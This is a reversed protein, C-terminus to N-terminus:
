ENDWLGPVYVLKFVILFVILFFVSLPTLSSEKDRDVGGDDYIPGDGWLDYVWGARELLALRPSWLTRGASSVILAALPQVKSMLPVPPEPPLPILYTVTYCQASITPTTSIGKLLSGTRMKLTSFLPGKM